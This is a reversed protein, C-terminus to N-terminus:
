HRQAESLARSTALWQHEIRTVSLRREAHEALRESLYQLGIPSIENSLRGALAELSAHEHPNRMLATAREPVRIPDLLDMASHLPDLAHAQAWPDPPQDAQEPHRAKRGGGEQHKQGAHTSASSGGLRRTPQIGHVRVEHVHLAVVSGVLALLALAIRRNGSSAGM